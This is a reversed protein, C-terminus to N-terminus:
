NLIGSFAYAEATKTENHSSSSFAYSDHAILNATLGIILSARARAFSILSAM